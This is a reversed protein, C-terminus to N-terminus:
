ESRRKGRSCFDDEDTHFVGYNCYGTWTVGIIEKCARFSKCERCRVVEVADVAPAVKIRDTVKHAGRMGASIEGSRGSFVVSERIDVLLASRSILDNM